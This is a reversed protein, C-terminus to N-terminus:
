WRLAEVISGGVVRSPNLHVLAGSRMAIKLLKREAANTSDLYCFWGSFGRDECDRLARRLLSVLTAGRDSSWIRALMVMGHCPSALLLSVIKDDRRAEWCWEPDIRKFGLSAEAPIDAVSSLARVEVSEREAVTM